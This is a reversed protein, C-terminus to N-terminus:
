LNFVIDDRNLNTKNPIKVKRAKFLERGLHRLLEQKGKKPPVPIKEVKCAEKIMEVTLKASLFSPFYAQDVKTADEDSIVQLPTSVVPLVM